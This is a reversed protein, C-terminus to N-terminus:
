CHMCNKSHGNLCSVRMIFACRVWSSCSLLFRIANRSLHQIVSNQKTKQLSSRSVAIYYMYMIQKRYIFSLIQIRHSTSTALLWIVCAKADDGSCHSFILHHLQLQLRCFPKELTVIKWLHIFPFHFFNQSFFRKIFHALLTSLETLIWIYFDNKFDTWIKTFVLVHSGYIKKM